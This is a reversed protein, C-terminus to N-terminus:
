RNIFEASRAPASVRGEADMSRVEFGYTAGILLQRGLDLRTGGVRIPAHPLIEADEYGDAKMVLEPTVEHWAATSTWSLSGKNFVIDQPPVLGKALAAPAGPSVRWADIRGNAPSVVLLSGNGTVPAAECRLLHHDAQGRRDGDRFLAVGM